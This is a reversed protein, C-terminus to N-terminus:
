SAGYPIHTGGIGDQQVRHGKKRPKVTVNGGRLSNHEVGEVVERKKVRESYINSFIFFIGLLFNFFVLLFSMRGWGRGGM